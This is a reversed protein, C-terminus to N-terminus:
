PNLLAPGSQMQEGYQAMLKEALGRQYAERKALDEPQLPSGDSPRELKIGLVELGGLGNFIRPSVAFYWKNGKSFIAASYGVGKIAWKDPEVEEAHKVREAFKRLLANHADDLNRTAIYDEVNARIDERPLLKPRGNEDEEDSLFCKAFTDYEGEYREHFDRMAAYFEPDKLVEIGGKLEVSFGIPFQDGEVAETGPAFFKETYAMRPLVADKIIDGMLENFPDRMTKRATADFPITEMKELEQDTIGTVHVHLRKINQPAKRDYEEPTVNWDVMTMGVDKQEHIDSAIDGVLRFLTQGEEKALEALTPKEEPGFQLVMVDYFHSHPSVKREIGWQVADSVHLEALENPAFLRRFEDVSEHQEPMGSYVADAEPVKPVTFRRYDLNRDNM